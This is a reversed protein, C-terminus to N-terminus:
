AAGGPPIDRTDPPPGDLHLAPPTFTDSSTLGVVDAGGGMGLADRLWM